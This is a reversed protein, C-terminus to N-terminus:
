FPMPQVQQSDRVVHWCELTLVSRRVLPGPVPSLDKCIENSRLRAQLIKTEQRMCYCRPPLYPRITSSVNHEEGARQLTSLFCDPQVRCSTVGPYPGAACAEHTM